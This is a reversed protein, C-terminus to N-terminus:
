ATRRWVTLSSRPSRPRIAPLNVSLSAKAGPYLLAQDELRVNAAREAVLPTPLAVATLVDGAAAPGGRAAFWYRGDPSGEARCGDCEYQWALIGTQKDLLWRDDVLLYRDDCWALKAAALPPVNKKTRLKGTALDYEYFVGKGLLDLASGDPKFVATVPAPSDLELRGCWTGGATELLGGVGSSARSVFLYKGDPGLAVPLDVKAIEYVGPM